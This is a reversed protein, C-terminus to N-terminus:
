SSHLLFLCILGLLHRFSTGVVAVHELGLIARQNRVVVTWRNTADDMSIRTLAHVILLLCNRHFKLILWPDSYTCLRHLILLNASVRLYRFFFVFAFLYIEVFDYLKAAAIPNKVVSKVRRNLLIRPSTRPWNRPTVVSIILVYLELDVMHEINLLISFILM